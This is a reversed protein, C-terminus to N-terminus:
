TLVIQKGIRYFLHLGTEKELAQIAISLTPQAVHLANAAQSLNQYRGAAYFYRLQTLTM